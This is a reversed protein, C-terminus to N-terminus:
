HTVIPALPAPKTAAVVPMAVPKAGAAALTRDITAIRTRWATYATVHGVYERELRVYLDHTAQALPEDGLLAMVDEHFAGPKQISDEFNQPNSTMTAILADTADIASQVAAANRDGAKLSKKREALQERTDHMANLMTDTRSLLDYERREQDFQAVYEAATTKSLPDPEKVVPVSYTKGDIHLALRYRGPPLPPGTEPGRFFYPASDYRVPGAITFDYQFDNVGASASIWYSRGDQGTYVDHKGAIHRLLHGKADYVDITPRSDPDNPLYFYLDAAASNGLFGGGPQSAVFANYNGEDNAYSNFAIVPRPALVLPAAPKGCGAAQVPAMNDMIWMARGHTAIALDDFQPQFRIDRVEVTPLNQQFSQWTAGRDCSIYIGRNTGAYVINANRIDPRVARAYEGAPIGTGLKTWHAGYDSTSFLYTGDDNVGHRDASVYAVGDHLTSPAVTEVASDAPLEPPTVDRWHKGGDLTVHVLGDDSGTWIEGKRLPSTEIDLLTGYNEASSEDRTVSDRDGQQKSKDNRTLDPSIVSWHAGRDHTAFVVNAGIFAIHPDYAAFAVPAEWDFRYKARALTFEDAATDRYPRLNTSDHTVINTSSLEGNEYDAWVVHPDLPDPVTWEGDGGVVNVWDRNAIGDEGNFAPGCWGNNDQFGGCVLYPVGSSLGVRYVEGIPLNRANSWTAGFNTTTAIGGDGALAMRQGDKSIWMDHLDPHVGFASLNFTKGGNFSSALLMSVGYVTNENAPSVRVHSFYFPRQDVLTNDSVMTWTAGADDSRWLLGHKSEVLAFIRKPNSPAFAVGIRGLPGAPLGHGTVLSWTKGGDNSRYLGDDTAAGSTLAWPRRLVHWMGAYLVDPNAPDMALDSAGSENSAFLANSMTAGGDFTVYVGRDRSPGFANGLVGVVVHAPNKPDILIKSVGVADAPFAAIKKWSRGGDTSHYLGADQIVDSRPNTEGAGLWVDRDDNPNVAVAGVSAVHIADTINTWSLGGDITKWAGGGASGIYYLLPNADSGVVSTARGEPLAPGIARWRMQAVPRDDARAAHPILALACLCASAALMRANM